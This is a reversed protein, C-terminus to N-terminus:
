VPGNKRLDRKLFKWALVFSLFSIIKIIIAVVATIVVLRWHSYEQCSGKGDCTEQWQICATDILKGYIIPGPIAGLLRTLNLQWGMAYARLRYPVSRLVAIIVPIQIFFITFGTLALVFLFAPKAACDKPCKGPKVVSHNSVTCRCGHFTKEKRSYLTCRAHCPSWLTTNGDCVPYYPWSRCDCPVGCGNTTQSTKNEFDKTVGLIEPSDCNTLLYCSAVVIGLATVICVVKLAGEAGLQLKKVLYSGCLQGLLVPVAVVAGFLLSVKSPPINYLIHIVKPMFAITATVEFYNMSIGISILVYSPSTFLTKTAIKLDKLSTYEIRNVALADEYAGKSVADTKNPEEHDKPAGALVRPFGSIGPLLLLSVAILVVCGLWWNGIWRSDAPTLSTEQGVDVNISLFLGGLGFGVAAGLIGSASFFGVYMSSVKKKVSEDLYAIGLVYLPSGGFGIILMGICFLATYYWHGASTTSDCASHSANTSNSQCLPPFLSQEANGPKYPGIIFHPSMFIFSGLILLLLGSSLWRAKSQQGGYYSVFATVILCAVDFMSTIMGTTSSTLGFRKEITSISVSYTGNLMLSMAFYFSSLFVLLWKPSNLWQLFSPRLKGWGFRSVDGEM